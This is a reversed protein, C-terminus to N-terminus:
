TRVPHPFSPLEPNVQEHDLLAQVDYISNGRGILSTAATARLKHPSFGAKRSTALGISTYKKVLDRIQRETLRKGQLSLFLADEHGEKVKEDPMRENEIYETVVEKVSENLPMVAEKARKRYIKFEGQYDTGWQAYYYDVLADEREFFEPLAALFAEMRRADAEVLAHLASMKELRRLTEAKEAESLPEAKEEPATEPDEENYFETQM